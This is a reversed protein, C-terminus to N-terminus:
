GTSQPAPDSGGPSDNQTPWGVLGVGIVINSAKAERKRAKIEEHRKRRLRRKAAPGLNEPMSDM